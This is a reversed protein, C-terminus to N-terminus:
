QTVLAALSRAGTIALAADRTLTWKFHFPGESSVTIFPLNIDATPRDQLDQVAKLVAERVRQMAMQDHRVDTGSERTCATAVHVVLVGIATIHPKGLEPKPVHRLQHLDTLLLSFSRHFLVDNRFDVFLRTTAFTPISTAADGKRLLCIFKDTNLQRALEATIVLREYGVGAAPSDAKERYTPTCVLLVRDANRIGSEIFLAVDAGLSLEWQDLTADVGSQRLRSALQATWRKHAPSEHAYSIFVKVAM